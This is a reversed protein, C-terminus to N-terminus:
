QQFCNSHNFYNHNFSALLSGTKRAHQLHFQTFIQTSEKCIQSIVNNINLLLTIM